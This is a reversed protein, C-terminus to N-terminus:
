STPAPATTLRRWKVIACVCLEDWVREVFRFYAYRWRKKLVLASCVLSLGVAYGLSVLVYIWEIEGGKKENKKQRDLQDGDNSCNRTLPPGCLNNGIYSSANFSQLQTGQPIRGTLKNYSLDLYSLGSILALSNPIRGWLSNRSLDLSEMQKMEGISDPILGTLQNRSLNLSGLEVLSILENPIDGSLNNKSLDISTVLSLITDYEMESGKKVITASEIAFGLNYIGLKLNYEYMSDLSRKAAMATFNYLCRPIIGSIKNNSLDLIQLSRLRCIESTVEGSFSNSRLILIRLEVLSTGIWTPLNGGLNNDALDIKVLQTCKHMSVPIQGSFNNNYLNLFQLNALLGMSTPLSGFMQNNGITLHTLSPWKMWCDSLKGSLLNGGLHLVELSYTQYTEDCLFHAIGGSLSNNSLDLERLTDGIRPLSGYFQNCSLYLRQGINSGRIDPIKGHLHNHSLNLHQIKWFWSPVSGSIGTSSIDLFTLNKQTELWSPFHSGTALNWSGLVLRELQFPPIWNRDVKMTLQNGFAYLSKLKTLNGFHKETVIGELKNYNIDLKELNYLQGLSDPLNGKLNNDVLYLIKLSSLKGLNIPITGSLSNSGFSLFRLNKFGGLHHTLHGSLKNVGLDLFELSKLFCESMNGFADSMKGQFKNFSLNLKRIKCMNTFETPITGHLYNFELFVSELDICFFLWGPITSNLSNSSLDIHRLKTTNSITPIPGIFSNGSLHLHHLNNLLFIWTPIPMSDFNNFSLDLLTLSTINLYHLHPSIYDLSCGRFHLQLLSPLTNIVQLWKKARSLDAFSMSLYELESLGWLWELSDVYLVNSYGGLDLTYLYSLNGINHPIKGHFGAFSLNLYEINTLSGFFLPIAQDFNNLSLDLHTLHKLNLLSPNIQGSLSLGHLDLQHVHGTLSNCIVGNWKCCNVDDQWSSLQHYPDQLSDKFSLLSQKEILPCFIAHSLNFRIMNMLLLVLLSFLTPNSATM